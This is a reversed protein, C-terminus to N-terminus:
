RRAGGAAFRELHARARAAWTAMGWGEARALADRLLAEAQEVRGLREELLALPLSVPGYWYATGAAAVHDAFPALRTALAEAEDSPPLGARVEAELADGCLRLWRTELGAASAALAARATDEDGRELHALALLLHSARLPLAPLLAEFREICVGWGHREREILAEFMSISEAVIPVDGRQRLMWAVATHAEADDLRGEAIALAIPQQALQMLPAVLRAEEAAATARAHAACAEPLRGLYLLAVSRRSHGTVRTLATLGPLALAEDALALAAECTGPAWSLFSRDLLVDALVASDDLRRAVALAEDALAASRTDDGYSLGTAIASLLRARAASPARGVADLAIELREIAERPVAGLDAWVWIGGTASLAAAARAVADLDGLAVAVDVAEVLAARAEPARGALYRARGLTHLLDHRRRLDTGITADRQEVAGLARAAWRAADDYALRALSRESARAAADVAADLDGAPGAELLHHALEALRRDGPDPRAGLAAALRGHLRRRQAPSLAALLTDRLLGHAFALRTGDEDTVLGTAVAPDLADLVDALPQDLAAALVGVDFDQGAVAGLSLLGRADDPLREVRRGIAERVGAPLERQGTGLLRALETAFYANGGSRAQLQAVEDAAPPVGTLAHAIVAVAEVPLPPLRVHQVGPQRDLTTRLETLPAAEDDRITAVVALPVARLQVALYRLVQLSDPDAWQLDDILLLLPAASSAGALLREIADCLAFRDAAQLGGVPDDPDAGPLGRLLQRWVWHSPTDADDHCRATAVSWGTTEAHERAAEALRSKGIGAPGTLLAWRTRGGRADELLDAILALEAERGVLPPRGARDLAPAPVPEHTPDPTPDPTPDADEGLGPGAAGDMPRDIPPPVTPRPAPLLDADQRLVAAELARLGPGTDLGLEEDLLARIRQYRDLADATRGARYLGLILLEWLRERLPHVAVLRELEAVAEAHRGLDLGAALRTEEAVIRLEELRAAEAAAFPEDAVDALAPGRWLGLAEGSAAEAGAPDGADLQQRATALLAAFRVADVSEPPVHLAYGPPQTVLVAAATRPPRDPELIRRLNSVYAQLSATARAPPAGGWLDEILRDVSVPRGVDLLLRALLARQKPTGLEVAEGGCELAVTGLVSFRV